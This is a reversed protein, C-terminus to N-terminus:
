PRATKHEHRILLCQAIGSLVNPNDCHLREGFLATLLGLTRNSPALTTSAEVPYELSKAIHEEM